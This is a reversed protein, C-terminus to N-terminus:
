LGRPILCVRYPSSWAERCPQCHGVVGLMEGLLLPPKEIIAKKKREKEFYLFLKSIYCTCRGRCGRSLFM